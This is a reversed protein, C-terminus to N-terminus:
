SCASRITLDSGFTSLTSTIKMGGRTVPASSTAAAMARAASREGDFGIAPTNMRLSAAGGASSATGHKAKGSGATM